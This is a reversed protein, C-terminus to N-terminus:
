TYKKEAEKRLRSVVVSEDLSKIWQKEALRHRNDIWYELVPTPNFLHIPPGNSGVRMRARIMPLKM